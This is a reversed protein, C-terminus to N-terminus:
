ENQQIAAKPVNSIDYNIASIILQFGLLIPLAALMVAGATAPVGSSVSEYWKTLGFAGGISILFVGFLFQLTGANFDRLFYNYFIRKVFRSLYKLPFEVMVRAPKLNSKEGLYAAKMPVDRVVARITNLRFLMDSEFFFRQDLKDLPLAELAKRHIATFGNTPDMTDWYGSAIKNVLSLVANGFLRLAPMQQLDELLFFRNGKTYDASGAVLPAVLGPILNPDMQGDGDLKVVIVAGDMLAHRYGTVVAGGVGQNHAHFLVVVRPDACTRQVHDGSREPCADDVVYIKTVEAGIGALVSSIQQKVRFCPIVVAISM